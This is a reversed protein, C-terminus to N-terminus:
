ENNAQGGDWRSEELFRYLRLNARSNASMELRGEERRSEDRFKRLWYDTCGCLDIRLDAYLWSDAYVQEAEGIEKNQQGRTPEEEM